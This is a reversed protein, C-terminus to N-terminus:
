AFCDATLTPAGTIKVIIQYNGSGTTDYYICGKAKEYFLGAGAAMGAEKTAVLAIDGFGDLEIRDGQSVSFDTITDVSPKRKGSVNYDDLEFIFSDAGMGGTLKDSGAHGNMIDAGSGGAIKDNGFLLSVYFDETSIGSYLTDFDGIPTKFGSASLITQGRYSVTLGSAYGSVDLDASSTFSYDVSGTVTMSYDGSSFTSSTRHGSQEGSNMDYTGNDKTTMSNGTAGDTVTFGSYSNSNKTINCPMSWSIGKHSVYDSDFSVDSIVASSQFFNSGSYLLQVTGYRIDITDTTRSYIRGYYLLDTMDAYSDYYAQQLDAMEASFPTLESGDNDLVIDLGKINANIIAM